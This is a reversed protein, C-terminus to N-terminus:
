PRRAQAATPTRAAVGRPGRRRRGRRRRRPPLALLPLSCRAPAHACPRNSLCACADGRERGAGGRKGRARCRPRRGRGRGGHAARRRAGGRAVRAVRRHGGDHVAGAAQVRHVRAVRVDRVPADLQAAAGPLWSPVRRERQQRQGRATSRPPARRRPRPPPRPPPRPRDPAARRRAPATSLDGPAPPPQVAWLVAPQGGAGQGGARPAGYDKYVLSSNYCSGRVCADAVVITNTGPASPPRPYSRGAALADRASGCVYRWREVDEFRLASGDMGNFFDIGLGSGKRSHRRAPPPAARPAPRTPPGTQQAVSVRRRRRRAAVRPRRTLRARGGGPRGRCGVPVMHRGQMAGCRMNRLLLGRFTLTANPGLTARDQAFGFDIAPPWSPDSGDAPRVLVDRSVLPPSPPPPGPVVGVDGLVVVESVAPDALAAEFTTCGLGAPCAARDAVFATKTRSGQGRAAGAAVAVALFVLLARM